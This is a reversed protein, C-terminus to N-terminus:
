QCERVMTPYTPDKLTDRIWNGISKLGIGGRVRM